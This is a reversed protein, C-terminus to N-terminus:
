GRGSVVLPGLSRAQFSGRRADCCVMDAHSDGPHSQEAEALGDRLNNLVVLKKETYIETTESPAYPGKMDLMGVPCDNSM